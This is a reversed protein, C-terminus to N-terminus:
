IAQDGPRGGLAFEFEALSNFSIEEDKIELSLTKDFLKDLM